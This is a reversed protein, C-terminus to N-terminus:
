LKNKWHYTTRLLGRSNIGEKFFILQRSPEMPNTSSTDMSVGLDLWKFNNKVAWVLIEYLLRNVARLEQYKYYHSIYFTLVVNTNCIFLLIGAIPQKEKSYAMLLKIKDPFLKNLTIIEELTHTPKTNFKKKNDLLIPYFSEFDSNFETILEQKFSKKIARRHMPTIKELINHVQFQSLDVANSILDYEIEFGKYRLLFQIIENPEKLYINPPPTLYIDSISKKRAFSLLKDIIEEYKRFTLNVTVFSGYSAGSPSKFVSEKLTGPLVAILKNKEYFALNFFNFKDRPHYSLFKLKHFITGNNSSEVFEDWDTSNQKKIIKILM